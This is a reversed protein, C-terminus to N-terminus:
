LGKDQPEASQRRSHLFRYKRHIFVFFKARKQVGGDLAGRHFLERLLKSARVGRDGILPSRHATLPSRHSNRPPRLTGQDRRWEGSAIVAHKVDTDVASGLAGFGHHEIELAAGDHGLGRLRILQDGAQGGTMEFLVRRVPDRRHFRRDRTAEILEAITAGFDAADPHATLLVAEDNKIRVILHDTGGLEPAIGRSDNLAILERGGEASFLPEDGAGPVRHQGTVGNGLEEPQLLVFGIMEFLDTGDQEGV